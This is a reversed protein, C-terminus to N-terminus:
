IWNVAHEASHSQTHTRARAYTHRRPVGIRNVDMPRTQCIRYANSECCEVNLHVDHPTKTFQRPHARVSFSSNTVPVRLGLVNPITGVAEMTVWPSSHVTDKKWVRANLVASLAFGFSFLNVFNNRQNHLSMCLLLNIKLNVETRNTTVSHLRDVTSKNKAASWHTKQRDAISNISKM